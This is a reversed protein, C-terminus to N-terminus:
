IPRRPTNEGIIVLSGAASNSIESLTQLVDPWLDPMFAAEYIREVLQDLPLRDGHSNTPAERSTSTM